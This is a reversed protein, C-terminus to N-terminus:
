FNIQWKLGYYTTKPEKDGDFNDGNNLQGIEPVIFVGKAFAITAQVYWSANTDDDDAGDLDYSTMGIGGEFRFMDSMTFAAVFMWGFGTNDLLKEDVADCGANGDAGPVM